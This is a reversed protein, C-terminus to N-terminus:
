RLGAWLVLEPAFLAAAVFVGFGFWILILLGTLFKIM